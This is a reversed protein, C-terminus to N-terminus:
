FFLLGVHVDRVALKAGTEIIYFSIKQFRRTSHLSPFSLHHRTRQKFIRRSFFLLGVHVDRVALKAGTEIIYFLFEIQRM